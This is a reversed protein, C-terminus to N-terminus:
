KSLAKMSLARGLESSASVGNQVLVAGPIHMAM